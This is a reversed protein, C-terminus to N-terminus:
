LLDRAREIERDRQNWIADNLREEIAADIAAEIVSAPLVDAEWCTRGYEEIYAGARSDSDKM